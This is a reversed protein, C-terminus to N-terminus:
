KILLNLLRKFFDAIQTWITQTEETYSQLSTQTLTIDSEVSYNADMHKEINKLHTETKILYPDDATGLGGAYDYHNTNKFKECLSDYNLEYASVFANQLKTAALGYEDPIISWIGVLGDDDYDILVSNDEDEFSNCWSEYYREFVSLSTGPVVIGGSANVAFNTVIDSASYGTGLQDKISAYVSSRTLTDVDDMSVTGDVATKISGNVYIKDSLVTFAANLRGGYVASGVIHTGYRDFFVSATMTGAQVKSLDTLFSETFLNAYTEKTNYASLWLRYKEVKHRLLYFYKFGYTDIDFGLTDTVDGELAKLLSGVSINSGLEVGYVSALESVNTTKRSFSSSRNLQQKNIAIAQLAVPDLINYGLSFDDFTQATLM